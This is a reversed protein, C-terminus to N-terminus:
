EFISKLWEWVHTCNLIVELAYYMIGLIGMRENIKHTYSRLKELYPRTIRCFFYFLGLCAISMATSGFPLEQYIWQLILSGPFLLFLFNNLQALKKRDYYLYMVYLMSWLILISFFIKPDKPGIEHYWYDKRDTTNPKNKRPGMDFSLSITRREKLDQLLPNFSSIGTRNGAIAQFIKYTKWLIVKFNMNRGAEALKNWDITDMSVSTTWLTKNKKTLIFTTLILKPHIPDLKELNQTWAEELRVLLDSNATDFDPDIFLVSVKGTNEQGQVQMRGGSTTVLLFILLIGKLYPCYSNGNHHRSKM